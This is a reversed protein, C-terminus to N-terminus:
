SGEHCTLASLGREIEIVPCLLQMKYVLGKVWLVEGLIGVAASISDAETTTPCQVCSPVEKKLIKCM